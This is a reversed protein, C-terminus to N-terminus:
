SWTCCQQGLHALTNGHGLAAIRMQTRFLSRGQAQAERLAMREPHYGPYQAARGAGQAPFAGAVRRSAVGIADTRCVGLCNGSCVLRAPKPFEQIGPQPRVHLGRECGATRRFLNGPPQSTRIRVIHPFVERGFRDIRGQIHQGTPGQAAFQQGRQPLGTLRTPWPRSPRIPATLEGIHCRNRVSGSFDGTALNRPVPFPVEQLPRVIARGDACQNLPSGAEDDEGPHVPRICTTGALAEGLLEPVYRGEQPFRQRVISAFLHRFVLAQRLLELNLHEKGIGMRRPLSAGVLIGVPQQALVQGLPRVQRAVSLSLQVGHGMPQICTGPFTEVKGRGQFNIRLQAM